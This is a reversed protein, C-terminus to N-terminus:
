FNSTTSDDLTWTGDAIKKRRSIPAPETAFIDWTGKLQQNDQLSESNAATYSVTLKGDTPTASATVTFSFLATGAAGPDDDLKADAKFDTWSTWNTEGTVAGASDLDEFLYEEDGEERSRIVLDLHPINASM